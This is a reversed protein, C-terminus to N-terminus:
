EFRLSPSDIFALQIANNDPSSIEIAPHPLAAAGACDPPALALGAVADTLPGADPAVDAEDPGDVAPEADAAPDAGAATAFGDPGATV